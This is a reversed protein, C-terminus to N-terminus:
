LFLRKFAELLCKVIQFNNHEDKRLRSNEIMKVFLNKDTYLKLCQHEFEDLNDAILFDYESKFIAAMATSGSTILPTGMKWSQYLRNATKQGLKTDVNNGKSSTSYYNTKKRVCFYVDEDGSNHDNLFDFRLNVGLSKMHKVFRESAIGDILTSERGTYHYIKPPWCPSCRKFNLAMPYPIYALEGVLQYKLGIGVSKILRKDFIPNFCSLNCCGYLDVGPVQPRDTVIQLTKYKLKTDIFERNDYHFVVVDFGNLSQGPQVLHVNDVGFNKLIWYYYGTASHNGELYDYRSPEDLYNPLDVDCLIAIKKDFLRKQM